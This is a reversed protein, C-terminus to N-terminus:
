LQRSYIYLNHVLSHILAKWITWARQADSRSDHRQRRRGVYEGSIVGVYPRNSKRRLSAPWLQRNSKQDVEIGSCYAGYSRAVVMRRSVVIVFDVHEGTTSHLHSHRRDLRPLTSTSDYNYGARVVAHLTCLPWIYREQRTSQGLTNRLASQCSDGLAISIVPRAKQRQAFPRIASSELQFIAPQSRGSRIIAISRSACSICSSSTLLHQQQQQQSPMLKDRCQQRLTPFVGPHHRKLKCHDHRGKSM